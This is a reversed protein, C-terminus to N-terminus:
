ICLVCSVHKGRGWVAQQLVVRRGGAEWFGREVGKYMCKYMGERISHEIHFFIIRFVDAGLCGSYWESGETAYRM